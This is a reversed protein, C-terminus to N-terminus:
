PSHCVKHLHNSHSPESLRAPDAVKGTASTRDSQEIALWLPDFMSGGNEIRDSARAWSIWFNQAAEKNIDIKKSLETM